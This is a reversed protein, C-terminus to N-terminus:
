RERERLGKKIVDKKAYLDPPYCPFSYIYLRFYLLQSSATTPISEWRPHQQQQAAMVLCLSVVFVGDNVLPTILRFHNRVSITIISLTPTPDFPLPDFATHPIYLFIIIRNVRPPERPLIKSCLSKLTLRLRPISVYVACTIFVFADCSHHHEKGLSNKM